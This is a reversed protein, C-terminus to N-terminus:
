MKIYLVNPGLCNLQRGSLGIPLLGANTKIIAAQRRNYCPKCHLTEGTHM